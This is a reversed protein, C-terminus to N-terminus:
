CHIKWRQKMMPRPARFMRRLRLSKWRHLRHRNKLLRLPHLLHHRTTPRISEYHELEAPRAGYMFTTRGQPTKVAGSSSRVVFRLGKAEVAPSVCRMTMRAVKYVTPIQSAKGATAPRM